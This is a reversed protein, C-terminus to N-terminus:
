VPLYARFQVPESDCRHSTRHPNGEVPHAPCGLDGGRGDGSRPYDADGGAFGYQRRNGDADAYIRGSLHDGLAAGRLEYHDHRYFYLRGDSDFAM